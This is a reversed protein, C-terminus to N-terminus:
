FNISFDLVTLDEEFGTRIHLVVHAIIQNINRTCIGFTLTVAAMNTVKLVRLFEYFFFSHM